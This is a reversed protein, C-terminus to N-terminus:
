VASRRRGRAYLAIAEPTFLAGRSTRAAPKLAGRQVAKRVADPTVGLARAADATELYQDSTKEM